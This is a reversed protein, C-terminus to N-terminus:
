FFGPPLEVIQGRPMPFAAGGNATAMPREPNPVTGGQRPGPTPENDPHFTSEDETGDNTPIKEAM